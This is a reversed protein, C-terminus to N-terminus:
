KGTKSVRIKVTTSLALTKSASPAALTLACQGAKKAATLKFGPKGKVTVSAVKCAGSASVTAAVKSDTLLVASFKKGVKIAKPLKMARVTQMAPKFCDNLSASGTAETSLGFPCIVASTAGSTAVFSGVPAPTCDSAAANPQYTGKDCRTEVTAGTAAVFYGPESDICNPGYGSLSYKGVACPAPPVPKYVAMTSAFAVPAGKYQYSLKFVIGDCDLSTSTGERATVYISNAFTNLNTTKIRYFMLAGAQADRLTFVDGQDGITLKLTGPDNAAPLTGIFYVSCQSADNFTAAVSPTPTLPYQDLTCDNISTSGTGATTKGSPCDTAAISGVSSAYKGIPVPACFAAGSQDQFTGLPCATQSKAGFTEVFHGPDASLCSPGFGTASYTGMDCLVPPAPVVLATTSATASPDGSADQYQLTMVAGDCSMSSATAWMSLVNPNTALTMLNATSFTIDILQGATFDKLSAVAQDAGSVVQLTVSNALADVPLAGVFRVTCNSADLLSASVSPVPTSGLASASLPALTASMMLASAIVMLSKSIVKRM